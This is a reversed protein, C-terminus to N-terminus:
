QLIIEVVQASRAIGEVVKGSSLNTVRVRQNVLGDTLARGAMRINMGGADAVLTVSQGRQVAKSAVLQQNTVYAGGAVPRSVTLGVAVQPDDLFGLPLDTVDHQEVKLDAAQLVTGMILAHAAVVATSIGVIRVPVYFHWGKVDTCQLEITLRDQMHHASAPLARVPRSCKALQTHPPIPGVIFRQRESLPPFEAAAASKALSELQPLSQFEAEEQAASRDAGAALPLLLGILAAHLPRTARCIRPV